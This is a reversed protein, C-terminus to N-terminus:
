CVYEKPGHDGMVGIFEEDLEDSFSHGGDDGDPCGAILERLDAPSIRDLGQGYQDIM